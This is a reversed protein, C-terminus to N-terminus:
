GEVHFPVLERVVANNEDLLVIKPRVPEDAYVFAAIILRDGPNFFRAAGGNMGIVGPPGGFAYTEIRAPHDVAWVHVLEGDLLGVRDMLNRDIEISGVYDPNAYTVRAHHLKSKLLKCLRM